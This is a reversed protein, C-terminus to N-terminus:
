MIRINSRYEKVVDYPSWSKISIEILRKGM